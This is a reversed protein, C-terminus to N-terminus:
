RLTTKIRYVKKKKLCFVAYSIRMLSQLESTHEESRMAPGRRYLENSLVPQVLPKALIRVDADNDLTAKEVREIPGELQDVNGIGEAIGFQRDVDEVHGIRQDRILYPVEAGPFAGHQHDLLPLGFEDLM